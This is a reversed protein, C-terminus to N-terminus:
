IKPKYSLHILRPANSSARAVALFAGMNESNLFEEDGVFCEVNKLDKAMDKAYDALKAPTM